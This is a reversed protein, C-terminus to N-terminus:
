IVFFMIKSLIDFHLELNTFAGRFMICYNTFSHESFRGQFKVKPIFCNKNKEFFLYHLIFLHRKLESKSLYFILM